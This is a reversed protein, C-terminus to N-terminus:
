LSGSFASIADVAKDLKVANEISCGTKYIDKVKQLDATLEVLEHKTIQGSTYSEKYADVLQFLTYDCISTKYRGGLVRALTRAGARVETLKHTCYRASPSPNSAYEVVLQHVYKAAKETEEKDAKHLVYEELKLASATLTQILTRYAPNSMDECLDAARMSNVAVAIVHEYEVPDFDKPAASTYSMVLASAAVLLTVPEM